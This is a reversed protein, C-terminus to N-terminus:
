GRDVGLAATLAALTEAVIHETRGRALESAFGCTCLTDHVQHRSAVAVLVRERAEDTVVLPTALLGAAALGRAVRLYDQRAPSFTPYHEWTAEADEREGSWQLAHLLRATRDVVAKADEHKYVRCMVENSVSM